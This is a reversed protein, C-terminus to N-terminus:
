RHRRHPRHRRTPRSPEARGLGLGVVDHHEGFSDTRLFARRGLRSLRRAPVCRRPSRAHRTRPGNPTGDRLMPVVTRLPTVAMINPDALPHTAAVLSGRRHRRHWQRLGTCELPLEGPRSGAKSERHRQPAPIAHHSLDGTGALSLRTRCWRPVERHSGRVGPRHGALAPRCIQRWRHPDRRSACCRRASQSRPGERCRPAQRRLVVRRRCGTPTVTTALALRSASDARSIM